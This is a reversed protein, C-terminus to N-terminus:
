DQGAKTKIMQTKKVAALPFWKDEFVNKGDTGQSYGQALVTRPFVHSAAMSIAALQQVIAQMLAVRAHALPQRLYSVFFSCTLPLLLAVAVRSLPRCGCFCCPIRSVCRQEAQVRGFSQLEKASSQAPSEWSDKRRWGGEGRWAM